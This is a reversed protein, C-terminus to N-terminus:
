GSSARLREIRVFSKRLVTRCWRGRLSYALRVRDIASGSFFPDIVVCIGGPKLVRALECFLHEADRMHHLAFKIIVADFSGSVFPLAAGDGLLRRM